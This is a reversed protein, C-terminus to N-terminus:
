QPSELRLQMAHDWALMEPEKLDSYWDGMSLRQRVWSAPNSKWAPPEEAFWDNAQENNGLNAAFAELEADIPQNLFAELKSTDVTHIQYLTM